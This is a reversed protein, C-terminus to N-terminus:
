SVAGSIVKRQELEQFLGANLEQVFQVEEDSLVHKWYSNTASVTRRWDHTKTTTGDDEVAQGVRKELLRHPHGEFTLDLIEYIKRYVEVENFELETGSVFLLPASIRGFEGCSTRIALLYVMHWLISAGVVSGPKRGDALISQIKQVDGYRDRFNPYISAVDVTWAKRKYSAAHALPSRACVVTPIGHSLASPVAFAATPDKWILTALNRSLKAKWYSTQTQSGIINRMLRQALNLKAYSQRNQSRLQLRLERLDSLFESFDDFSFGPEGPIAFRVPIRKDGTPGMPEYIMGAGRALALTAGVPTTGSRPAGTVLVLRLKVSRFMSGYCRESTILNARLPAM